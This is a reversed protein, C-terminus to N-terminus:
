RSDIIASKKYKTYLIGLFIKLTKRVVVIARQLAM